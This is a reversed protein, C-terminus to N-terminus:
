RTRSPWSRPPSFRSPRVRPVKAARVPSNELDDADRLRRLEDPHRCIEKRWRWRGVRERHITPRRGRRSSLRVIAIYGADEEGFKAPEPAGPYVMPAVEDPTVEEFAHTDGLALYDLGRRSPADEAIPFNTEHGPINFTQGHVMGIRLREDGTRREPLALALDHQGAQSRCPAACLLADPRLEYTFDDRDVIHVWDPLQSRFPHEPSFVSGPTLPDHNGPLLILPRGIWDRKRLRNALGEWWERAPQPEDFVDGACLVADVAYYEAKGLIEDVVELRARTLKLEDAESFTPFRRGLHWDATHLLKLASM